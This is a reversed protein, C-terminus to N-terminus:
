LCASRLRLRRKRAPIGAKRPARTQSTQSGCCTAEGIATSDDRVIWQLHGVDCARAGRTQRGGIQMASMESMESDDSADQCGRRVTNIHNDKSEIGAVFFAPRQPPQSSSEGELGPIVTVQHHM